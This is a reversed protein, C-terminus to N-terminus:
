KWLHHVVSSLPSLILVRWVPYLLRLNNLGGAVKAPCMKDKLQLSSLGTLLLRYLCMKFYAM